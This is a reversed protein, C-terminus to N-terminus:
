QKEAVIAIKNNWQKTTAAATAKKRKLKSFFINAFQKNPPREKKRQQRQQSSYAKLTWTFAHHTYIRAHTYWKYMINRTGIIKQTKNYQIKCQSLSFPKRSHTFFINILHITRISSSWSISTGLILYILSKKKRTHLLGFHDNASNLRMMALKFYLFYDVISHVADNAYM